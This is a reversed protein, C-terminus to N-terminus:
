LAKFTPFKSEQVKREREKKVREGEATRLKDNQADIDPWFRKPLTILGEKTKLIVLYSPGKQTIQGGSVDKSIVTDHLTKDLSELESVTTATPWKIGSKMARDVSQNADLIEGDWVTPILTEKGNINIIMTRVTSVSGDQNEVAQGQKITNRHHKIIPNEKIALDKIPVLNFTTPIKHIKVFGPHAERATVEDHQFIIDEAEFEPLGVFADQALTKVQKNIYSTEGNDDHYAPFMEVPYKQPRPVGSVLTTGWNRQLLSKAKEEAFETTAGNLILSEFTAKYEDEWRQATIEDIEVDDTFPVFRNLIPGLTEIAKDRYDEAFEEDKIFKERTTTLTENSPDTIQQTMKFAEAPSLNESLATFRDAFAQDNASLFDPMGPIAEVRSVLDMSEEVLDRKGSRLGNITQAKVQSPVKGAQRIYTATTSTRANPSELEGIAPLIFQNFYSDVQKQTVVQSLDGEMRKVMGSLDEADKNQKSVQTFVKGQLSRFEADSIQGSDWLSKVQRLVDGADEFQGTDISTQLAIIQERTKADDDVKKAQLRAKKHGLATQARKVIGDWEEPSMWEQRKADDLMKFADDLGVNEATDELDKIFVGEVAPLLLEKIQDETLVKFKPQALLDMRAQFDLSGLKKIEEGLERYTEVIEFREKGEVEGFAEIAAEKTLLEKPMEGKAYLEINDQSLNSVEKQAKLTAAEIAKKTKITLNIRQNPELHRADSTDDELWELAKRPDDAILAALAGSAISKSDADNAAKLQEDTYIRAASRSASADNIRESTSDPDKSAGVTHVEVLDNLAGDVDAIRANNQFATAKNLFSGQMRSLALERKQQQAISPNFNSGTKLRENIENTKTRFGEVFEEGGGTPTLKYDDWAKTYESEANSAIFAADGVDEAQQRRQQLGKGISTITEDLEGAAAAVAGTGPAIPTARSITGAIDQPGPIRPM